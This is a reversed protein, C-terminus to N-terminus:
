KVAVTFMCCYWAIDYRYDHIQQAFSNNYLWVTGALKFWDTTWPNPVPEKENPNRDEHKESNNEHEKESPNQKQM